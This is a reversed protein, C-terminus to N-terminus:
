TTQKILNDVLKEIRELINDYDHNTEPHYDNIEWYIIKDAYTPFQEKMMKHHESKDLAVITKHAKLDDETLAERKPRLYDHIDLGKKQFRKGCFSSVMNKRQFSYEQLKEPEDDLLKIKLGRSESLLGRYNAYAEAYRSRFFNGTCIFLTQKIKEM